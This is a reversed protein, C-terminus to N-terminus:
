WILELRSFVEEDSSVSKINAELIIKDDSSSNIYLENTVKTEASIVKKKGKVIFYGGQDSM